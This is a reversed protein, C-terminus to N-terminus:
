FFDVQTFVVSYAYHVAVGDFCHSVLLHGQLGDLSSWPVKWKGVLLIGVSEIVDSGMHAFSFLKDFVVLIDFEGINSVSLYQYSVLLRVQDHDEKVDAANRIVHDIFQVVKFITPALLQLTENTCVPILM